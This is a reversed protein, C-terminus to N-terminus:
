NQELGSWYLSKSATSQAIFFRKLLFSRFTDKLIKKTIGNAIKYEVPLTFAFDIITYDLFPARVELSNAMSMSDVKVLMDNQLVLQM